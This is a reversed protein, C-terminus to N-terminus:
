KCNRRVDFVLQFFEKIHQQVFNLSSIGMKFDQESFNRQNEKILQQGELIAEVGKCLKCISENKTLLPDQMRVKGVLLASQIVKAGVQNRMQQVELSSLDKCAQVTASTLFLAVVIPLQMKKM